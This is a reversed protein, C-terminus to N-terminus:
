QAVRGGNPGCFIEMIDLIMCKDLYAVAKENVRRKGADFLRVGFYYFYAFLGVNCAFRSAYYLHEDKGPKNIM